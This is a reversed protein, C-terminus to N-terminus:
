CGIETEPSGAWGWGLRGGWGALRGARWSSWGAWWGLGSGLGLRGLGSGLGLRGLGAGLNLIHSGFFHGFRKAWRGFSIPM